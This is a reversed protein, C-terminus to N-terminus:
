IIPAAMMGCELKETLNDIWKAASACRARTDGYSTAAFSKGDFAIVVVVGAGVSEAIRKADQIPIRRM